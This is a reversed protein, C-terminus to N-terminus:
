DNVVNNLLDEVDIEEDVKSSKKLLSDCFKVLLEPSKNRHNVFDRCAKDLSAVFGSEGKFCETVITSYKGHVLLLAEVFMKPDVTDSNQKSTALGDDNSAAASQTVKEVAKLGQQRVYVEFIEWLKDLGNPIRVLLSYMRSLDQNKENDLLNQFENQITDMHNKIFVVECIHILPDRTSTHLYTQSRGEEEELRIEAKKMYDMVNNDSIFKESEEKYFGETADLFPVQFHTVYENLTQKKFDTEDLGM